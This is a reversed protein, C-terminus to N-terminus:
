PLPARTQFNSFELGILSALFAAQAAQGTLGKSDGPGFTLTLDHTRDRSTSFLTGTQDITARVLKWAPTIGGSSVIEFKVEHSLVNQKFASVAGSSANIEQTLVTQYYDQLWELTKLDSQILLSSASGRQIGATCHHRALLQPITYYFNLKDTRTADASLTGTGALTFVSTVPSPPSWVVTPNLTSKEEVTLGLTIQVGWSALFATALPQSPHARHNEADHLVVWQVADAVECHVSQVIDQVLLQGAGTDGPIEQQEPVRLGCAGVVLAVAFLLTCRPAFM